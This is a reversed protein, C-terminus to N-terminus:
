RCPMQLINLMMMLLDMEQQSLIYLRNLYVFYTYQYIFIIFTNSNNNFESIKLVPDVRVLVM